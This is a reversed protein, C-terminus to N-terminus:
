GANAYRAESRAFLLLGVDIASTADDERAVCSPRGECRRLGGTGKEARSSRHSWVTPSGGPAATGRRLVSNGQFKVPLIGNKKAQSRLWVEQLGLM